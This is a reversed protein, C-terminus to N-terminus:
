VDPIDPGAINAQTNSGAFPSTGITFALSSLAASSPTCIRILLTPPLGISTITGMSRPDGWMFHFSSGTAVDPIFISCIKFM